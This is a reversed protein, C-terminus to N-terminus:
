EKVSGLTIGKIFYKQFFPYACLIPIVGIAAIAMRASESPLTATNFNVNGTDNTRLYQIDALIRNLLNQLSYLGPKTLYILGNNWDNWYALGTLLGLTALMPLSMPLAIKRFTKFEGAGDIKASDILAPPINTFFYARMLLVNFGSMLLNPVLLAFFTDKIHFVTTYVLYSPVLGGNFLMTFVVLFNFINRHPLKPKSLPYALLSTITLSLSTGVVTLIISVLYAKGISAWKSALYIYAALNLKQPFFSYGNLTIALEDSLSTIILLVFPAVCAISFLALVIHSVAIIGRDEKIKM